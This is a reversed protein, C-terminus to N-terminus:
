KTQATRVSHGSASVSAQQLPHQPKAAVEITRGTEAGPAENRELESQHVSWWARANEATWPAVVCDDLRRRLEAATQPRREPLKDLCALVLADLEAPVDVGRAVLSEPPQHLHQICLQIVSTGDFVDVGALLYYAVAGLAYIDSRADAAGPQLISEPPMYQPTGLLTSVGTLKADGDVALEKVLGFDLLKVVDHEGGQFCLMINAPKIDRHILGIGHAESLAACAQSLIRVVRAAPQRGSVAVIRQLTAGQLLEMAYYFVGDNTRGYDFITITNPHTLRATLQVEREFRRLQMESAQEGRLLKIASPRRMMGHRARYVQGMGGEGIKEELVYQGLRLAERVEVRLGYIIRSIMTCTIVVFTWMIVFTGPLWPFIPSDLPRWELAGGAAPLLFSTAVIPPIGVLASIILTRRPRSPILAARIATLLGTGFLQLMAVFADAMMISSPDVLARDRAVGVLLYRSTAAGLTVSFLLAAGEMLRSFQVSRQGRRCLWWFAGSQATVALTLWFDWGRQAVAGVAGLGSGFLIIFFTVKWFLAVRDQLFARAEESDDSVPQPATDVM